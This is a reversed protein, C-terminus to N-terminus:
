RLRRVYDYGGSPKFMTGGDRASPDHLVLTNSDEDYYATRGGRLERVVRATEMVDAIRDAFQRWTRISRFEHRHKTFAHGGAIREATRKLREKFSVHPRRERVPPTRERERSRGRALLAGALPPRPGIPRPQWTEQAGDRTARLRLARQLQRALLGGDGAAVARQAAGEPPRGQPAERTPPSTARPGGATAPPSPKPPEQAHM